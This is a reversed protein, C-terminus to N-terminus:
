RNRMLIYELLLVSIGNLVIGCIHFAVWTPQCKAAMTCCDWSELSISGSGVFVSASGPKIAPGFFVLCLLQLLGSCCVM